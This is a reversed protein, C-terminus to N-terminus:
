LDGCHRSHPRVYSHREESSIAEEWCIVIAPDALVTWTLHCISRAQTSETHYSRATAVCPPLWHSSYTPCMLFRESVPSRCAPSDDPRAMCLFVINSSPETLAHLKELRAKRSFASLTCRGHSRHTTDGSPCLSYWASFAQLWSCVNPDCFRKWNQMIQKYCTWARGPKVFRLTCLMQRVQEM